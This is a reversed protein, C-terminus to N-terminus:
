NQPQNAIVMKHLFISRANAIVQSDPFKLMAKEYVEFAMSYMKFREYCMATLVAFTHEDIDSRSKELSSLADRLKEQVDKDAVTFRIFYGEANQDGTPNVTWYYVKSPVFKGWGAGNGLTKSTLVTDPMAEKKYLWDDKRSEETLYFDFRDRKDRRWVFDCNDMSLVENNAPFLMLFGGRKTVTSTMDNSPNVWDYLAEFFEKIYGEREKFYIDGVKKFVVEGNKSICYTSTGNAMVLSGYPAVKISLDPDLLQNPKIPYWSDGTKYFANIAEIAKIEPKCEASQNCVLLVFFLIVCSKMLIM